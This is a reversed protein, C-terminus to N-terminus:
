TRPLQWIRIHGRVDEYVLKLGRSAPSSGKALPRLHRSNEEVLYDSQEPAFSWGSGTSGSGSNALAIPNTNTVDGSSAASQVVDDRGDAHDEALPLPTVSDVLEEEQPKSRNKRHRLSHRNLWEDVRRHASANQAADLRNAPPHATSMYIVRQRHMNRLMGSFGGSAHAMHESLSCLLIWGTLINSLFRSVPLPSDQFWTGLQRVGFYLCFLLLPLVPALSINFHPLLVLAMVVYITLYSTGIGTYLTLGYIAGMLALGALVWRIWNYNAIKVSAPGSPQPVNAARRDLSTFNLTGITQDALAFSSRDVYKQIVKIPGRRSTQRIIAQSPATYVAINRLASILDRGIFPSLFLLITGVISISKSFGFRKFLICFFALLLTYGIQHSLVTLWLMLGCVEVERQSLWGGLESGPSLAVDITMLTAMSIVMYTMQSDLSWLMNLTPPALAYLVTIAFAYPREIQRRVFYHVQAISLGYLALNLMKFNEIQAPPDIAHRMKIVLGMLLPCIPPINTGAFAEFFRGESFLEAMTLVNWTEMSVTATPMLARFLLYGILFCAGLLAYEFWDEEHYPRL